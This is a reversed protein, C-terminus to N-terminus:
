NATNQKALLEKLREAYLQLDEFSHVKQAKELLYILEENISSNVKELESKLLKNTEAIVPNQSTCREELIEILAKTNDKISLLCVGVGFCNDKCNNLIGRDNSYDM